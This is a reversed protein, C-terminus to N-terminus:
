EWAKLFSFVDCEQVWDWFKVFGYLTTGIWTCVNELRSVLNCVLDLVAPSNWNKKKRALKLLCLMVEKVRWGGRRVVGGGGGKEEGGGRKGGM